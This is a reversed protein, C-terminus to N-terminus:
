PRPNLSRHKPNLAPNLPNLPQANLNCEARVFECLEDMAISTQPRETAAPALAKLQKLGQGILALAWLRSDAPRGSRRDVVAPRTPQTAVHEFGSLEPECADSHSAPQDMWSTSFDRFM